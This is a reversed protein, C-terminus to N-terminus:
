WDQRQLGPKKQAKKLDAYLADNLDQEHALISKKLRKLQEVRFSYSLTIGGDFYERMKNLQETTALFNM